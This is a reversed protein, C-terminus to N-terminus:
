NKIIERTEGCTLMSQGFYPNSIKDSESLWYAGKNNFAMPCYQYYVPESTGYSKLVKYLVNSIVSFSQRQQDIDSSKIIRQSESELTKVHDMWSDMQDQGILNMDVKKLKDTIHGAAASAKKVDSNVFANKLEKYASYMNALQVQLDPNTTIRKTADPAITSDKKRNMMSPMAMLQASADINFTGNTVIEEGEELGDLVVYSDGLDPGLTIERMMYTPQSAGQVKIYIISRIGTWLVASQPIVLSKGQSALRNKLYGTAFMEPKLINGSNAVEVRLRAVRTQPNIVPDIFAIVGNFEKGPLSQLTFTVKDGQKIWPLDSEYADFLAWVHSLDAIEYLASGQQVYDGKNVKKATVIGSVTATVDFVSKVNGSREIEAIQGDTFKWQRLKDRAASIISTDRMKLAEFLEQQATVMLPSYIQAITQGKRVEEGTFNILLQEIRGALHASQTQLLREDAQIKGYLRVEKVPEQRTVVTTQVEAIRAADETMSISNPDIQAADQILPILDMGCIPCQGPADRRIQPHMSCTWITSKKESVVTESKQVTQSRHFVLWGSFFGAILLLSMRLYTNKILKNIKM